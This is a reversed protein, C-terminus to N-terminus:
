DSECLRAVAVFALAADVDMRHILRLINYDFREMFMPKFVCMLVGQDDCEEFSRSFPLRKVFGVRVARFFAGSQMVSNKM